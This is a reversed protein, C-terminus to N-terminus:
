RAAELEAIRRLACEYHRPGQEFCRDYHTSVHTWARWFREVSPNGYGTAPPRSRALVEPRFLAEFEERETM